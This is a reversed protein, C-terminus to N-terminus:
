WVKTAGTTRSHRPVAQWDASASSLAPRSMSPSHFSASLRPDGELLRLVLTLIEATRDGGPQSSTPSSEM